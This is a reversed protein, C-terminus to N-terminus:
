EGLEVVSGVGHAVANRYVVSACVVDQLALGVSKFLTIEDVNTRGSVEGAILAGLEGAVLSAPAVGLEEAAQVIDGAEAIAAEMRDVFVRSAAITQADVERLRRTYAGVLNLHTGAQLSSGAFLPQAANTAACIVDAQAVAEAFNERGIAVAEVQLHESAWACVAGDNRGSASSVLVRRIPRVACVAAIQHRALAGAGIMLLTSADERALHRTAVGSAAGTRIATLEEADMLALPAGTGADHLLVVGQITPEGHRAPNDPFVTVIKVALGPADGGLYAPMSLHLGGAGETPVGLALRQPMQAKGRYLAAFGAGVAALADPMALLERVESRRILRM